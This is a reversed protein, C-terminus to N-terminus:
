RHHQRYGLRLHYHNGDNRRQRRGPQDPQRRLHDPRRSGTGNAEILTTTEIPVRSSPSTTVYVRGLDAPVESVAGTIPDTRLGTTRIITTAPIPGSPLLSGFISPATVDPLPGQIIVDGLPGTSSISPTFPAKTQTNAASSGITQLTQISGGDGRLSITEIVSHDLSGKPGFTEAVTILAIVSGRAANSPTVINATGSSDPTSVGQVTFAVNQNDFAGSGPTDDMFFGVQSTDSFPVRFTETTSGNVSGAQVILTGPALLASAYSATAQAGTMMPGSGFPRMLGFAVAQISRAAISHLPVYGRVSVGALNDHPLYVGAPSSDAGFFSSAAPTITSLIDGEVAVNRIGSVGSNGTADLRALNFKASDNYTVLSLDFQDPATSGTQNSVRITLQPYAQSVSTSSTGEILPSIQGEYFYQFTVGAPSPSPAPQPMAAPTPFPASPVTADILRQVGYEEIQGVVPGYGAYVGITGIQSAAVKGPTGGDVTMTKLMGLVDVEGGMDNRIMLSNLNGATMVGTYSISGGVAATGLTGPVTLTGALDQGITLINLNAVASIVKPIPSTSVAVIGTRTLSGGIFLSNCTFETQILGSVNGSVSATSLSGGVIVQGSIDNKGSTTATNAPGVDLTTIDGSVQVRGAISGGVTMTGINGLLGTPVPPVQQDAANSVELVGSATLSGGITISKISGPNSLFLSGNLNGGVTITSTAFGSLRLGGNYDGAWSTNIMDHGGSGANITTNAPLNTGAAVAINFTNGMTGGSGLSINLTALGSFTIGSPGMNMGTLTTASLTGTKATTSGTDDVNMTDAGNGAVTLAGEINDVIGRTMPEKSGVNFTNDAGLTQIETTSGALTSQVNFTSGGVGPGILLIGDNGSPDSFRGTASYDIVGPGFGTISDNTVVVDSYSTTMNGSDDVILRNSGGGGANVTLTNEIGAPNVNITDNGAGGQVSVEGYFVGGLDFTDGYPSGDIDTQLASVTGDLVMTLGSTDGDNEMYNDQITVTNAALVTAGADIIVSDGGQLFVNGTGPQLVGSVYTGASQVTVGSQITVDDIENAVDTATLYINANTIVNQMVTVPSHATILVEGGAQVADGSVNGGMFGGVFAAGANSVIFTGTTANGELYSVQTDVPLSTTGVNQSASLYANVAVVNPGGSNGNIISGSPVTLFVTGFLANVQYLTLNGLTEVLYANQNTTATLKSRSNIYLPAAPSSGIDGTTGGTTLKINNGTIDATQDGSSRDIGDLISLASELTVDGSRSNLGEMTVRDIATPGGVTLSGQTSNIDISDGAQGVITAPSSLQIELPVVMGTSPDFGNVGNTVNFTLSSAVLPLDTIRQYLGGNLDTLQVTGNAVIRDFNLDGGNQQLYIDQGANASEILGGYKVVLPTSANTGLDGTGALLTVNGPTFIQPSSTGASQISQPATINVDGGAKVQGIALDQGTSGPSQLYVSSGATANFTGTAAVFLPATQTLSLGTLTDGAPQQGLEFTVPNGMSNTGQAVVDGPATALALAAKQAENLTGNQLDMLSVPVPAALEGVGDSAVLTVSHGSVNPTTTGVPTSTAGSSLGTASVTYTLEAYTWGSNQTLATVQAPTATYQYNPNFTQFDPLNMWNAPLNNNLFTVTQQYLGLAYAEIQADTPDADAPNSDNDAAELSAVTRPRFLQLAMQGAPTDTSNLSYVGNQVTGNDLLQWYQLYNVDVQNEFVAITQDDNLAASSPTNPTGDDNRLQLNSWVQEIQADSLVQAPTQSRADLIGGNTVDVVVDGATSSITNVILDGTDQEVSINNLASATLAGGMTGGDALLTGNASLDLPATVGVGGQTSTLTLNDGTVNITGASLGPAPDLDGTSSLVVDGYSSAATGATVQDILAGSSLNLYVGQNGAQANLVGLATTQLNLPAAASGIVGGALGSDDTTLASDLGSIVWPDTATGGGTVGVPGGTLESLAAALITACANYPIAGTTEPQFEVYLTATFTGGTATNWLLQSNAPVARLTSSGGTLGFPVVTLASVGSGSILWPDGATGRGTVQAAISPDMGDLAAEVTAASADYAFTATRVQNDVTMQITLDGGSATTWLQQPGPPVPQITSKEGVPFSDTTELSAFGTGVILWPDAAKGTGSVTVQVGPLKNLANEVSTASANYDIAGTTETSGNVAASITFTDSSADNSLEEQVFPVFQITSSGSLGSDDTTIQSLGTGSFLWPDAATGLGTVTVGPLAAELAAATANFPVTASEPTGSVTATIEFTGDTASNWLQLAGAPTPELTSSGGSVGFPVATITSVGSGSILWPDATTGLGTVTASVSSDMGDLAAQLGAATVDAPLNAQRPVSNVTMQITFAGTNSSNSLQQAGSPVATLTSTAGTGMLSDTVSLAAFGTGSIIWPDAATGSGTVSTTVGKLKNLATQVDAATASYNVSATTETGGSTTASITFTGGTANSIFLESAGAPAAQITTTVSSDNVSLYSFGTGTIIWPDGGSGGGTVTAQVGALSDLAAQVSDASTNFDLPYTVETTGSAVASITFTGATADNFLELAGAPEAQQTSQYSLGADNTALNSVGTGIIVWPNVATGAGTVTVQVGALTNLATQVAGSDANYALTGTTEATGNVTATITFMGGSATNWLRQEGDAVTGVTGSGGELGQDNATLGSVGSILWPDTATGVGTVTAQVGPLADLAAQLEPATANYALPGATEIQGNVTVLLTFTGGTARNWLQQAGAPVAQVTSSGGTAKLTLDNSVLSAGALNTISGQATITTTGNPNVIAGSLIVPANSNITVNGSTLGSFNIGIPNDAKVSNTLTISASDFYSYYWPDVVGGSDSFSPNYPAFGYDGDHYYVLQTYSASASGSITEYFDDSELSPDNSDNVISGTPTSVGSIVATPNGNADLYAWPDNANLEGAPTSFVWNGPSIGDIESKSNYSIGLDRTLNAELTWQFRYGSAPSYSATTGPTPVVSSGAMLDAETEGATGRYTSIGVGPQYVYLSQQTAYPQNTDIIDVKSSVISSLSNTGASVNQVVVPIGTENDITVAGLGGNVHINGLTNTSIVAGDMAFSGGGSSASVNNLVIQNTAANYQATITSDSAVVPAVPLGFLPNGGVEDYYTRIAAIYATLVAPLDVSWANPQGVTIASDLDIINANILIQAAHLASASGGMLNAQSYSATETLSEAPVDPFYGENGGASGSIAHAQGIPSDQDATGLSGNHTISGVWPMDGGYFVESTTYAADGADGILAVTFDSTTYQGSSNFAANAAYAVADNGNPAPNTSTASTPNGGPWLIVNAWEDYPASGTIEVGNSPSIVYIGNPSTISAQEANIAGLQAISGDVNTIAVGGGLNNIDGNLYVAPGPGPTTASTGVSNPYNENITVVAGSGQGNPTVTIGAKKAATQGAAGTFLVEGGPLFPITIVDFVLYDPSANTVSITPGGFATISGGGTLTDANVTVIGGAAYLPSFILAGVPSTSTDADFATADDQSSFYPDESSPSFSSDFMVTFPAYLIGDSANVEIPSGNVEIPTTDTYIGADKDDPIVIDLEHYIGATITGNQTVSSSTSETPTSSSASTSLASTDYYATGNASPSRAGPFAGISVNQGSSVVAGSDITLSANSALTTVATAQPVAILGIFYSQANSLGTMTTNFLGTPENGATLNVNGFASITTNTGVTVSQNTTVGTTAYAIGVAALGYTNVESNTQADVTTYTGLGINGSSTLNDDTGTTVSNTLTADLNSNTGAGEIAGGATLTVTDDTNLTSSAAIDIGGPNTNPDTGSTISVLNGLNVSSTGVLTDKSLVASGNAVGGAGGAAGSGSPEVFQNQATATVTGSAIIATSDGTTDGINVTASVPSPSGSQTTDTATAKAGSGGLAAALTSNASPAYNDANTASVTVTGAYIISGGGIGACATSTDNSNATAADGALVGGSGATSSATNTDSGSATVSLAGTRGANTNNNTGLNATTTVGSSATATSSGVGVLGAAGATANASQATQNTAEITVDGDPLTVGPGTYAKISGQNSATAVTAEVGLLIGGAGGVSSAYATPDTNGEQGQGAMVTLSGATITAASPSNASDSPNAVGVFASVSPAVVASTVSAGIGAGEAVAVGFAKATATPTVTAQVMMANTVTLPNTGTSAQVNPSTTASAGAGEGSVVGGAFATAEADSSDTATTQVTLNECGTIVGDMYSNASGNALATTTSSGIALSGGAIGYTMTTAGNTTTATISINGAAHVTAGSGAYATVSPSVDAIANGGALAGGSTAAISTAVSLTIVSDNSSAGISIQGGSSTIKANDVYATISSEVTNDATSVGISGGIDAGAGAGAGVESTIPANEAADLTIDGKATIKSPASASAGEIYSAITNKVMNTSSAGAGSFAAGLPSAAVAVTAAVSTAQIDATTPVIASLMIQGASNITSADSYAEVTDDVSNDAIAAGIAFTAAVAGAAFSVSAAVTKATLNPSDTATLTVDGSTTTTVSAGDALYAEVTNQLSNTSNGGAGAAAGASDGAGIAVAGGVTVAFITTNEAAALTVSYGSASCTSDDVYALVSNDINNTAVAFGVAAALGAGIGGVGVALGGGGATISSTDTADISLSGGSATVTSKGSVYADVNNEITNSSDSGAVALGTGEFGGVGAAVAGGVTVTMITANETASLEVAGASKVVADNIYAKVTNEIDNNAAAAGLSAGTGDGAGVGVGIGLGGAIAEISSTDLATVIVDGGGFTMVESNGQIDADVNNMVTNGSGAGAGGLGVGDAGGSQGVGVAGGITWADITATEAAIVVVDGGTTNVTSNNIYAQVTDQVDNIAVSIGVSAGVGGILGSGVGVSLSGAVTEITPEDGAGISIVGSDSTVSSNNIYSLVRNEVTDGSGAGAGSGGIGGLGGTTTAVSVGISLAKITPQSTALLLVNGASVVHSSNVYAETTNEIENSAVSVGAALGLGTTAIAVGVGGALAEITSTDQATVALSGSGSATTSVEPSGSIHADTTNRIINISVAGGLSAKLLGKGVAASGAVTINFIQGTYTASVDIQSAKM